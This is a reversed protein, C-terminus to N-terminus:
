RNNRGKFLGVNVLLSCAFQRVPVIWNIVAMSPVALVLLTSGLLSLRWPLRTEYHPFKFSKVILPTWALISVINVIYVAYAAQRTWIWVALGVASLFLAAADLRSFYFRHYRWSFIVSAVSLVANVAAFPVAHWVGAAILSASLLSATFSWIVFTAINPKVRGKRIDALYFGGGIAFVLGALWGMVLHLNM